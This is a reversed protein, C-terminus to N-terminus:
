VKANDQIIVNTVWGVVGADKAGSQSIFVDQCREIRNMADAAESLTAEQSIVDFALALKKLTPDQDLLDEVTLSALEAVSKNNRAQGAIFRDIASRHIVYQAEGKNGLIPIRDGKKANEMDTLIDALKLEDAPLNKVFMGDRRIMVKTVAISRLKEQPTIQKALETVSKTAAEFNEKSFYYALVTGVWTGLLPLVSGFVRLGADEKRDPSTAYYIILGSLIAVSLISIVTVGIALWFRTSRWETNNTRNLDDPM